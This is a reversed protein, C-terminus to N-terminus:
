RGQTLDPAEPPLMDAVDVELAQSIAVLTLLEPNLPTGPKSEGKEFKQYTYPAIGARFAVDDQSMGLAARARKLNHGIERAYVAWGAPPVRRPM